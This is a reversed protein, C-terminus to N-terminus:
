AAASKARFDALRTAGARQNLLRGCDPCIATVKWVKTNIKFIDVM